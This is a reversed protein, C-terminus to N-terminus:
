FICPNCEYMIPQVKAKKAASDATGVGTGKDPLFLSLPRKKLKLRKIEFGYAGNAKGDDGQLIKKEM